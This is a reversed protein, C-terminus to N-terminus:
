QYYKAQESLSQIEELMSATRADSEELGIAGLEISLKDLELLLRENAEIIEDMTAISSNMLQLREGKVDTPGAIKVTSSVLASNARELSQYDRVDFANIRNALVTCNRMLVNAATEVASNFKMWSITGEPFKAQIVSNLNRQKEQASKVQNSVARARSGIGRAHLYSRLSRQIDSPDAGKEQDLYLQKGAGLTDKRAWAMVKRVLFVVLVVLM